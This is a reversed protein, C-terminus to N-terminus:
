MYDMFNRRFKLHLKSGIYLLAFTFLWFYAMYVPDEFFWGRGLFSDRFGEIIYYLANLRMINVILEGVSEFKEILLSTDWLVPTLYFLMRMLSQLLLQFDRVLTSITSSFLAFAFLFVYMCFVYYILQLIQLTPWQGYLLTVVILIGMMIVFQYSNSIIRITPLLSVPFDM